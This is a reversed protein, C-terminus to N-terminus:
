QKGGTMLPFIAWKLPWHKCVLKVLNTSLIQKDPMIPGRTEEGGARSGEDWARSGEVEWPAAGGMLPGAVWRGVGAVAWVMYPPAAAEGRGDDEAQEEGERTEDVAAVWPRDLNWRHLPLADLDGTSPRGGRDQAPRGAGTGRRTAEGARAVQELVTHRTESPARGVQSQSM